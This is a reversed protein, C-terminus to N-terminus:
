LIRAHERGLLVSSATNAGGVGGGGSAGNFNRYLFEVSLAPCLLCGCTLGLSRQWPLPSGRLVPGLLASFSLAM